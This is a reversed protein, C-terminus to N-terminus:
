EAFEPGTRNLVIIPSVGINSLWTEAQLVVPNQSSHADVVLLVVDALMALNTAGLDSLLSPGDFIIIDGKKTLSETFPRLGDARLSGELSEPSSEQSAKGIPLLSLKTISTDLLPSADVGGVAMSRISDLTGVTNPLQLWTHLVPRQPNADVLITQLEDRAAALALGTALTSKGERGKPSTVLILRLRKEHEQAQYRLRLLLPLVWSTAQELVQMRKKNLDTLVPVVVTAPPLVIERKKGSLPLATSFRSALLAGGLGMILGILPSLALRQAKTLGMGPITTIQPITSGVSLIDGHTFDQQLLLGQMRYLTNVRKLRAEYSKNLQSYQFFSTNHTVVLNELETTADALDIEANSLENTLITNLGNVVVSRQTHVRQLLAQYIGTVLTSADQQTDGLATLLIENTNHVPVATVVSQLTLLQLTRFNSTRHLTSLALDLTSPSVFLGSFFTATSKVNAANDLGSPLQVQVQLTAQYSEPSPIDPILASAVSILTISLVIYWSWHLLFKGFLALHSQQKSQKSNAQKAYLRTKIMEDLM